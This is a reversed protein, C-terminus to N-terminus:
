DDAPSLKETFDALAAANDDGKARLGAVTGRRDAAPKNQGLKAKAEIREVPIEFAVIARALKDIYAGPGQYFWPEEADAEHIEILRDLMARVSATDEIIKPTGYTHVALYNWTPVANESVYNSPSIYAHPGQFVTLAEGGTFARWHPNSRAMHGTLIGYPGPEPVYMFPLHSGIIAGDEGVSTKLGFNNARILSTIEHRDEILFDVPIYM